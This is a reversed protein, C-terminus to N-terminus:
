PFSPRSPRRPPRRLRPFPRPSGSVGALQDTSEPIDVEQGPGSVCGSCGLCSIGGCGGFAAATMIIVMLAAAAAAATKKKM